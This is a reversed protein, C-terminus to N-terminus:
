AYFREATKELLGRYLDVYRRSMLELSFEALIKRRTYEALSAHRDKDELIWAIGEAFDEVDYPKALYGSVEHDVLDVVGGQRFSVCPTGCAMAEMVTNSLNELMSPAVFVDAASYVTALKKDDNIRGLSVVPMGLDPLPENADSGFIVALSDPFREGLSQLAPVLLHFGKNPDKTGGVAGFLIISKDDPLGLSRRSAQKDAPHFVETDLGNPIVEIRSKQFLSSSRACDALWRSPTVLTMDFDRWSAHKRAWTRRSLDKERTSGLVPCDGCSQRYRTCDFPMHCGGTFPWSDHLTWVLPKGRRGLRGITEVSLFGASLWHLHIIDPDIEPIEVPPRDPILAPSFNNEPKNPYRRVSLLGLFLKARRALKRLPNQNCLVEDATGTKFQVLMRTDIGLAKTGRLLRLAARAAGGTEDFTNLMLVKM